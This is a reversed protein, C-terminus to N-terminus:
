IPEAYDIHTRQAHCAKCLGTACTIITGTQRINPEVFLLAPSEIPAINDAEQSSVITTLVIFAIEVVNNTIGRPITPAM